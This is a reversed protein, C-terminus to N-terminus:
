LVPSGDMYTGGAGIGDPGGEGDALADAIAQALVLNSETLALMSDAVKSLTAILSELSPPIPSAEPEPTHSPHGTDSGTEASSAPNAPCASEM